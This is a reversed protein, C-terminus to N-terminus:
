WDWDDHIDCMKERYLEDLMLMALM